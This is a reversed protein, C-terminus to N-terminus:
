PNGFNPHNLVNVSDVRVEFDKTETIRFHKILNMDLGLIAPGEVWRLGLNGVQGPAPNVLLVNGQSDMIAKNSFSGSLGNLASVGAGAPDTIQLLGPFYTVGNSLKTVKGINKPFDGVIQPTM